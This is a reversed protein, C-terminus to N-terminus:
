HAGPDLPIGGGIDIFTNDLYSVFEQAPGRKWPRADPDEVERSYIIIQDPLGDRSRLPLSLSELRATQGSHFKEVRFSHTGCPHEVILRIRAWALQKADPPVFDLYNKGTLNRGWRDVHRTGVIRLILGIPESYQLKATIVDPLMAKLVGPEIDDRRPIFDHKPLSQWYALFGASEPSMAALETQTM